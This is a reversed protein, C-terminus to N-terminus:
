FQRLITGGDVPIYAGTIFSAKKSALFLVTNAIDEPNGIRQLPIIKTFYEQAEANNIDTNSPGPAVINVRIKREALESAAVRAIADVAAKTASYVSTNLYAGVSIGSSTVIVSANDALFPMLKQLTFYLGKVNVNFMSDFLEETTEAIPSAAGIGANLILTDIKVGSKKVNQELSKIGELNAIDSVISKLKPNGVEKVAKELNDANKGTILVGAGEDIFAKAISFGIGRSGGTIVVNKNTFEM